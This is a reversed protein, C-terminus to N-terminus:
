LTISSILEIFSLEAQRQEFSESGTCFSLRIKRQDPLGLLELPRSIVNPLNKYGSLLRM